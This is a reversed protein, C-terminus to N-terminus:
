MVQMRRLALKQARQADIPSISHKKDTLRRKKQKGNRKLDPSGYGDRCLRIGKKRGEKGNVNRNNFDNLEALEILYPVGSFVWDTLNIDEGARLQEIKKRVDKIVVLGKVDDCIAIDGENAAFLTALKPEDLVIINEPSVQEVLRFGKEKDCCLPLLPALTSSDDEKGGLEDVALEIM